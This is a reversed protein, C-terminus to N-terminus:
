CDQPPMRRGVSPEPAFPLGSLFLSVGSAVPDYVKLCADCVARGGDDDLGDEERRHKQPSLSTTPTLDVGQPKPTDPGSQGLARLTNSSEELDLWDWQDNSIPQDKVVLFM